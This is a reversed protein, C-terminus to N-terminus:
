WWTGPLVRPIGLAERDVVVVRVDFRRVHQRRHESLSITRFASSSRAPALLAASFVASSTPRARGQRLHLAAVLDHLGLRSRPRVTGSPRSPFGALAAVLEDGALHEQRAERPHWSRGRPCRAGAVTERRLASSVAIRIPARAALFTSEAPPGFAWRSAKFFYLARGSGLARVGRCARGPSRDAVVLDSTRIWTSCRRVLFLGTSIPSGPTPLVAITRPGPAACRRPRPARNRPLVLAHEHSSM